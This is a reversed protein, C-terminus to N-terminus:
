ARAWGGRDRTTRRRPKRARREGQIIPAHPPAALSPKMSPPEMPRERTCQRGGGGSWGGERSRHTSIEKWSSADCLETCLISINVIGLIYSIQVRGRGWWISYSASPSEFDVPPPWLPGVAISLVGVGAERATSQPGRGVIESVMIVGQGKRSVYGTRSSSRIHLQLAGAPLRRAASKTRTM